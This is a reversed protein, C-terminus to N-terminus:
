LNMLPASQSPTSDTGVVQPISSPEPLILLFRVTPVVAMVVGITQKEDQSAQIGILMDDTVKVTSM